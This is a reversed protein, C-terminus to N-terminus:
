VSRRLRNFLRTKIDKNLQFDGMYALFALIKHKRAWDRNKLIDLLVSEKVRAIIDPTKFYNGDGGGVIETIKGTAPDNHSAYDGIVEGSENLVTIGIETYRMLRVVACYLPISNLTAQGVERCTAMVEQISADKKALIVDLTTYDIM